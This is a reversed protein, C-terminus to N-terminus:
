PSRSGATLVEAADGLGFARLAQIAGPEVPPRPSAALQEAFLDPADPQAGPGDFRYRPPLMPGFMLPEALEPRALLDPAVGLEDALVMALANHPDIPPAPMLAARMAAREPADVEGAWLAVIWRAQLELLPFYPGQAFFQGVAGFGPLDPHLTRQYLAFQPGVVDWVRDDLYPIDLDYGTACIIADVRDRSDDSFTIERDDVAAIAPRCAIRGAKVEALWDQCLALGAVLLDPDPEPAGFSAPNGAVRMVRERLTRSLEDRSLHRRELAGFATFWQWDSSVGDVNKQIVYRPKRFASVVHAVPALDSAIELGSIGNGYVLVRRGHFPEAGPYDFAHLLDGGFRELGAPLHPKRFRGSAVVVGDFREGDVEWGPAVRMVPTRLRIRETVGFRDAYERLYAHIQEAAPHLPHTAPAPADSFATMARSTNTHMGPWIGSHSATAHWQGGLDDSAEFVTTDFGAELAHKAAVLGSPGAGVVAVRAGRALRV